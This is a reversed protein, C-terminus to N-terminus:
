IATISKGPGNRKATFRKRVRRRYCPKGTEKHLQDVVRRLTDRTAIKGESKLLRVLDAIKQQVFWKEDKALEVIRTSLESQRSPRGMRPKSSSRQSPWNRKRRAKEYWAKFEKRRVYLRSKSLLAALLEPAMSDTAFIRKPQIIRDPLGRRTRIM